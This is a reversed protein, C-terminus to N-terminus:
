LFRAAFRQAEDRNLRRRDPEGAGHRVPSLPRSAAPIGELHVLDDGACRLQFLEVRAAPVYAVSQGNVLYRAEILVKGVGFLEEAGWHTMLFLQFPSVYLSRVNGLAGEAVRLMPLGSAAAVKQSRIALVPQFGAGPTMVRDGVRLEEVPLDGHYTEVSTARAITGAAALGEWAAM